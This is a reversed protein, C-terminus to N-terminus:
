SDDLWAPTCIVDSHPPPQRTRLSARFSRGIKTLRVAILNNQRQIMHTGVQLRGLNTDPCRTTLGRNDRDCQLAGHRMEVACKVHQALAFYGQRQEVEIRFLCNM